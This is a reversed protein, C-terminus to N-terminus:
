GGKLKLFRLDLDLCNSLLIIWKTVSPQQEYCQCNCNCVKFGNTLYYEMLDIKIILGIVNNCLIVFFIIQENPNIFILIKSVKNFISLTYIRM